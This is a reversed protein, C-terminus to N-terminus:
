SNKPKNRRKQRKLEKVLKKENIYKQYSENLDVMKSKLVEDAKDLNEKDLKCNYFEDLEFPKGILITNKRFPKQKNVIFCPLIPTKTKISLFSAGGKIEDNEDLHERRTGEPFIAINEGNKIIAFIEKLQSLTFGKSRDVPIAGLINKFLFSNLKKEFLEKKAIFRNKKHFAYDLIVPDFASQHNCSIIYNRKKDYNEKGIIKFPSIIKVPLYILGYVFWFM